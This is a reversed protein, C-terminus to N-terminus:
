LSRGKIKLSILSSILNASVRAVQAGSAGGGNAAQQAGDLGGTGEQLPQAAPDGDRGSERGRRAYEPSGRRWAPGCRRRSAHQRAAPAIIEDRYGNHEDFSRFCEPTLKKGGRSDVHDRWVPPSNKERQNGQRNMQKPTLCLSGRRDQPSARLASAESLNIKYPGRALGYGFPRALGYLDKERSLMEGWPM